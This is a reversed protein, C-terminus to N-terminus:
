GSLSLEPFFKHNYLVSISCDLKSAIAVNASQSKVIHSIAKFTVHTKVDALMTSNRQDSRIRAQVVATCM